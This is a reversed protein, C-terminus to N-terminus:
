TTSFTKLPEEISKLLPRTPIRLSKVNGELMELVRKISPRDSPHTQICWLGVILMKRRSEEEVEDSIDALEIQDANLELRDYIWDPFYKSSCNDVEENINNKAGIMELIMMGYSYVDSKHSVGGFNRSFIEPAIYGPTGRM